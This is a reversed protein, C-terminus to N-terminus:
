CWRHLVSSGNFHVTLLAGKASHCAQRTSSPTRLDLHVVYLLSPHGSLGIVTQSWGPGPGRILTREIPQPLGPAASTPEGGLERHRSGQRRSHTRIATRTATTSWGETTPLGLARRRVMHDRGADYNASTGSWRQPHVPSPQRYRSHDMFLLSEVLVANIENTTAAAVPAQHVDVAPPEPFVESLFATAM